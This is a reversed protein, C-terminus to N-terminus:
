GGHRRRRRRRGRGGGRDTAGNSEARGTSKPQGKGTTRRDLDHLVYDALVPVIERGFWTLAGGVAPLISARLSRTVPKAEVPTAERAPRLVPVQSRDTLAVQPTYLRIAEMPCVPICAECQRCLERDVAALGDVLYIAGTPCVELCQGCGNCREGNIEIM